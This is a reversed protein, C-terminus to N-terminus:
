KKRGKQAAETAYGMRTSIYVNLTNVDNPTGTLFGSSMGRSIQRSSVFPVFWSAADLALGGMDGQRINNIADFTLGIDSLGKGIAFLEAGLLQGGPVVMCYFGLTQVGLGCTTFTQAGTELGIDLATGWFDAASQHISQVLPNHMTREFDSLTETISFEKLPVSSHTRGYQDGYTADEAGDAMMTVTQGLYTEGNKLDDQSHVNADWHVHGKADKYWDDNTVTEKGNPDVLKIPNWMCYNYPSMSPYKDAMPDVSLWMTMLEHDMYRAGFYSYGTEEDREKGTFSRLFLWSVAHDPPPKRHATRTM